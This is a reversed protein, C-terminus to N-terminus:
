ITLAGGNINLTEGTMYASEDSALYAALAAIEEVTAMRGIPITPGYGAKIPARANMATTVGGPAIANVRVGRDAVEKAVAQTLGIIAAKSASYHPIGAVGSVGALSSMNIISGSRRPLMERLAARLFYFTGDLNISMMRRWQEDTLHATIDLGAQAELQERIRIKVEPDDVGAINAMVDLRGHTDVTERVIAEVRSVDSVDAAFATANPLSDAREKAGAENWDVVVVTAGEAAFRECTAAGIGAAGGTVIAVRGQLRM